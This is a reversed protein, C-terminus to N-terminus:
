TEYYGKQKIHRKFADFFQPDRKTMLVTAGHIFLCFPVVWLSHLAIVFASGITGNLIAVARPVGGLLIQETLSRHLSIEYGDM